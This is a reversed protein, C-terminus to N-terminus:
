KDLDGRAFGWIYICSAPILSWIGPMSVVAYILWWTVLVKVACEKRYQSNTIM